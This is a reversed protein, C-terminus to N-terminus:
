RYEAPIGLEDTEEDSFLEHCNPCSVASSFVNKEIWKDGGGPGQQLEVSRSAYVSTLEQGCNSCKM